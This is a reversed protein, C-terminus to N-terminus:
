QIAAKIESEVMLEILQEFNVAPEWGLKQKAMSADGLLVDVEAPRWFDPNITVVTRNLTNSYASIKTKDHHNLDRWELKLDLCTAVQDILQKVSHKKGTAIVFDESSDSALMAHMAIVYDKAYGWDREAQINGIQMSQRTGRAIRTLEYVVKRTVFEMGRLPSEHNFLIGCNSKIGYAERYNVVACHAALKSVGYPSRPYFPTSESQLPQQIKGYMESTSAQYLKSHPSHHRIAELLRMVGQANTDMTYLPSKFSYGVFSQAALNYIEDFQNNKITECILEYEFLEFHLYQIENAINLQELRWKSNSSSRRVGGYVDYGKALLYEALYAGSQGTVGTVFAKM